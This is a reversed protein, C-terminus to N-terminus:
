DYLRYVIADQEWQQADWFPKATRSSKAVLTRFSWANRRRMETLAARVLATGIGQRRWEQRVFLGSIEGSRFEYGGQDQIESVVYGLVEDGEVYVLCFENESTLLQELFRTMGVKPDLTLVRVESVDSRVPVAIGPGWRDYSLTELDDSIDLGWLFRVEEIDEACMKRIAM